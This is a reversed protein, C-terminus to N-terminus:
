RRIPATVPPMINRPWNIRIGPKAWRILPRKRKDQGKFAPFLRGRGELIDEASTFEESPWCFRNWIWGASAKGAHYPKCMTGFVRKLGSAQTGAIGLAYVTEQENLGLLRACGAASALRGITSTGHWGAGYHESGACAGIVAGAKLGIIYASLVDRVRKEGEM